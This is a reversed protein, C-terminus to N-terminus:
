ENCVKFLNRRIDKKFKFSIIKKLLDGNDNIYQVGGGIVALNSNNQM